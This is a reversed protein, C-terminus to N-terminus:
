IGGDLGEASVGRALLKMRLMFEGGGSNSAPLRTWTAV